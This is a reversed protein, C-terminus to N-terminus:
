DDKERTLRGLLHDNVVVRFDRDGLNTVEVRLRVQGSPQAGIMLPVRLPTETQAPWLEASLSAFRWNNPDYDDPRDEFGCDAAFTMERGTLTSPDGIKQMLDIQYRHKLEHLFWNFLYIGDAGQRWYNAALERAMAPSIPNYRSPWGYLCPYIRVYTGAALARFAEVDIYITFGITDQRM